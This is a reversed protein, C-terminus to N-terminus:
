LVSSAAGNRHVDHFYRSLKQQLKAKLLLTLSPVSRVATCQHKTWKTVIRVM